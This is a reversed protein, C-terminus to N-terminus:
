SGGGGLETELNVGACRRRAVRVTRSLLPSLGGFAHSDYGRPESAGGGTTTRRTRSQFFRACSLRQPTRLADSLNTTEVPDDTAHTSAHVNPRRLSMRPEDGGKGTDCADSGWRTM